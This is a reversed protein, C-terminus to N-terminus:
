TSLLSLLIFSCLIVADPCSHLYRWRPLPRRPRGAPLEVPWCPRLRLERHSPETEGPSCRFNRSRRLEPQQSASAAKQGRSASPKAGGGPVRCGAGPARFGSGPVRFDPRRDAQTEKGGGPRQVASPAPLAARGGNARRKKWDQSQSEREEGAGFGTVWVVSAEGRKRGFLTFDGPWVLLSVFTHDRELGSEAIGLAVHSYTRPPVLTVVGCGAARVGTLSKEPPAREGRWSPPCLSTRLCEVCLSWPGPLFSCGWAPEAQHQSRGPFRGLQLTAKNDWCPSPKTIERRLLESHFAAIAGQSISPWSFCIDERFGCILLTQRPM